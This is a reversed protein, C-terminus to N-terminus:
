KPGLKQLSAPPINESCDFKVSFRASCQRTECKGCIGVIKTKWDTKAEDFRCSIKGGKEVEAWPEDYGPYQAVYCSNPIPGECIRGTDGKVMGLNCISETRSRSDAHVSFPFLTFGVLLVSIWLVGFVHNM